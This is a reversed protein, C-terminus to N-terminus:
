ETCHVGCRSDVGAQCHHLLGARLFIGIHEKIAGTCKVLGVDHGIHHSYTQVRYKAFRHWLFPELFDMCFSLLSGNLGTRM